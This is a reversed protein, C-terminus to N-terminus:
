LVKKRSCANTYNPVKIREFTSLDLYEGEYTYITYVDGEKFQASCGTDERNDSVVHVEGSSPGKESSDIMFTTSQHMSGLDEVSTVTGTFIFKARDKGDAELALCPCASATLPFILYLVFLILSLAKMKKEM